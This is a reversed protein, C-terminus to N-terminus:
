EYGWSTKIEKKKICVRKVAVNNVVRIYWPKVVNLDQVSLLLLSSSCLRSRYSSRVVVCSFASWVRPSINLPRLYVPSSFYLAYPLIPDAAWHKSERPYFEALTSQPIRKLMEKPFIRMLQWGIDLTEYVTRNEYAGAPVVCFVHKKILLCNRNFFICFSVTNNKSWTALNSVICAFRNNVNHFSLANETQRSLFRSHRTVRMKWASFRTLIFVSSSISSIHCPPLPRPKWTTLILCNVVGICSDIM